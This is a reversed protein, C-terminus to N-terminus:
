AVVDVNGGSGADVPPAKSADVGGGYATMAAQSSGMQMQTTEISLSSSSYTFSSNGQQGQLAALAMMMGLLGNKQDDENGQMYQLLLMLLVAGLLENNHAASSDFAMFESKYSLSTNTITGTEKTGTEPSPSIRKYGSEAPAIESSGTPQPRPTFGGTGGTAISSVGDM